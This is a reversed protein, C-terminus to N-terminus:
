GPKCETYFPCWPCLFSKVRQPIEKQTIEKMKSDILLKTSELPELDFLITKHREWGSSKDIYIIAARNIKNGTQEWYMYAYINMQTKYNDPVERPISKKTTKKDCIILEGDIEILDDMSGVLAGFRTPRSMKLEHELGGLACCEHLMTGHVLPLAKKFDKKDPIFNNMRYWAKRSCESTLDSVHIENRPTQKAEYSIISKEYLSDIISEIQSNDLASM